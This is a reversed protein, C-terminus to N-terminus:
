PRDEFTFLYPGVWEPIAKCGSEVRACRIQNPWTAIIFVAGVPNLAPVARQTLLAAFLGAGIYMSVLSVIVFRGM